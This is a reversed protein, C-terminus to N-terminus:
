RLEDSSEDIIILCTIFLRRWSECYSFFVLQFFLQNGKTCPGDVLALYARSLALCLLSCVPYFYVCFPRWKYTDRAHRTAVFRIIHSANYSRRLDMCPSNRSVKSPTTRLARIRLGQTTSRFDQRTKQFSMINYCRIYIMFCHFIQFNIAM